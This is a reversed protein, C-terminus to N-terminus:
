VLKKFPHDAGPEIGFELYASEATFTDGMAVLPFVLKANEIPGYLLYDAGLTQAILNSAVDATQYAERNTKKIKRLWPWSSVANHIGCGTPLGYLTKSVFTFAAASGAGAGLVTMATDVLPKSIGIEKCLDLLGSKQNRGGKELVERKGAITSDQPNFALVIASEPPLDRLSEIEASSISVNISNYIAKDLLGVEEAFRLGELRVIADSSDILFPADSHESVFEIYKTMATSSEAFIQVMEPNGTVDSMEQQQTLLQQAANEDFKGAKADEVIRHNGYFITGALVTPVEGASGGIKIEGINHIIQEKEFIFM